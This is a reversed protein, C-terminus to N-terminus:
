KRSARERHEENSPERAAAAQKEAAYDARCDDQLELLRDREFQKRERVEGREINVDRPFSFLVQVQKGSIGGIKVTGSIGGIEIHVLDGIGRTLVLFGSSM